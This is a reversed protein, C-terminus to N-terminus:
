GHIITIKGTKKDPKKIQINTQPPTNPLQNLNQIYMPTIIRRRLQFIRKPKHMTRPTSSSVAVYFLWNKSQRSTHGEQTADLFTLDEQLRHHTSM